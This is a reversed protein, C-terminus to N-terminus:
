RKIAIKIAHATSKATNLHLYEWELQRNGTYEGFLKVNETDLFKM